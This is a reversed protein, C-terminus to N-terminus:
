SVAVTLTVGVGFYGWSVYATGPSVGEIIGPGRPSNRVAPTTQFFRPTLTTQTGDDLRVTATIQAAEGVTLSMPGELTVGVIRPMRITLLV